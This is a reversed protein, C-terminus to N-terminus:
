SPPKVKGSLVALALEADDMGIIKDITNHEISRALNLIKEGRMKLKELQQILRDVEKEEIEPLGDEKWRAFQTEFIWHDDLQESYLKIIRNVTDDDLVHPKDLVLHISELQEDVSDLMGDILESFVPLMNIPHWIRERKDM